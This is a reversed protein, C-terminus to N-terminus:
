SIVMAGITGTVRWDGAKGKLVYTLWIAGKGSSYANCGVKASKGSRRIPGLTVLVANGRVAGARTLVSDRRRVFDIPALGRLSDAIGEKLAPAFPAPPDRRADFLPRAARGTAGDVVYIRRPPGASHDKVLRRIVAAYVVSAVPPRNSTPEEVVGRATSSATEPPSDSLSCATAVVSFLAFAAAGAIWRAKGSRSHFPPAVSRDM